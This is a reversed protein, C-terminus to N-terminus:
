ATRQIHYEVDMRPGTDRSVSVGKSKNRDIDLMDIIEIATSSFM